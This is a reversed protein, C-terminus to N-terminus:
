GIASSVAEAVEPSTSRVTLQMAVGESLALKARLLVEHGGRFSGSILHWNNPHFLTLDIAMNRIFEGSSLLTHTHVGQNVKGSGSDAGLGLFKLITNVADQLTSVASLEYTDEM